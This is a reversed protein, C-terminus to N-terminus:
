SQGLQQGLWGVAADFLEQSPAAYHRDAMTRPSHGLFYSKFRGYDKHSELLTAGLKRLQKLSRKFGPMTQRIRRKLHAYSSAFGDAKVLRGNVLEKRVYPKGSETLLVREGGSRHQKLLTVTLPWLLYNVTPVNDCSATKSRKRIVRGAVWDVEDDLLDSVDGQTMGCNAMLLLALKLKGPALAVADKFEDPTWTQVAKAPSGFRFSKSGINKPLDVSGSEWLWRIFAKAVAFVDRAYAVSWGKGPDARRSAVQGVCHLYFAQLRSADIIAVDSDPGLFTQFHALCTGNNACRDPTLQGAAVLAQQMALWAGAHTKVARDAPASPEGRMGKVASELQQLRAPPLHEALGELLPTGEVVSQKLLEVITGQIIEKLDREAMERPSDHPIAGNTNWRSWFALLNDFFDAPPSGLAAAALDELPLPTRPAPRSAADIEAKKQQWWQNAAQYSGDKTEPAGLQLCSVAYKKGKYEKMWGRRSPIWAMHYVRGM